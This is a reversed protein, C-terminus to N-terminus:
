CLPVFLSLMAGLLFVVYLLSSLAARTRVFLFPLLVSSPVAMLLADGATAAPGCLLALCLVLVGINFLLIYRARAGVSYLNVSISGIGGIDLLLITGAVAMWPLFGSRFLGAITGTAFQEWIALVPALFSGGLSWNAYCLLLAAFLMGALAVVTERRTRQFLLVGFPLLLLLPLASPQVLLLCGLAFSARFLLDFSYGDRFSEGFRKISLALLTAALVLPLSLDRGTLLLVFCGFLPLSLCTNIGYLHSRVSIRGLAIGGVLLLLLIAVRAWGPYASQFCRLLDGPLAFALGEGPASPTEAQVSATANTPLTHAEDAASTPATQGTWPLTVGAPATAPAVWLAIIGLLLLTLFAPVFLQRALYM